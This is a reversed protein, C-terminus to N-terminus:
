ANKGGSMSEVDEVLMREIRLAYQGNSVGYKCELVPVGDVAVRATEHMDIPLVDGVQMRMLERLKITTSALTAVLEVEAAQVQKSLMHVWRKDPAQPADAPKASSLERIPELAAYPICIHFAGGSQGLEISFSSVVVIEREDAITAFQPHTESRVYEFELPHVSKWSKQYDDLVIDLMRRIIRLEAPTFERPEVRASFRGGGFLNDVMLFVLAPEFVVLAQGRLSKVQVINLSTPVALDRLFDAFQIARLPALSIQPNQGVFNFVGIRLARVFRDHITDLGPLRARVIREQTALNYPRVGDAPEANPAAADENSVGELLSDVEDQSLFENGM